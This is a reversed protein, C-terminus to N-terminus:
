EGIPIVPAFGSQCIREDSHVNTILEGIYAIQEDCTFVSGEDYLIVTKKFPSKNNAFSGGIKGSRIFIDARLNKIKEKSNVFPSLAMYKKGKAVPDMKELSGEVVEIRGKGTSSDAGYGNEFAWKTLQVIRDEPYSSLIYLDFIQNQKIPFTEKVTFLDPGVVTNSIRNISNHMVSETEFVKDVNDTNEIKSFFKSATVYKIKKDKKINSYRKKDMGNERPKVDPIPRCLTDSPFASSVILPPEATKCADLFQKVAEDGEHNAIGWVFHGWITDGKLATIISSKLCIKIRYLVM